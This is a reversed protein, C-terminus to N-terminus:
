IVPPTKYLEYKGGVKKVIYDVNLYFGLVKNKERFDMDNLKKIRGEWMHEGCRAKICDIVEQKTLVQVLGPVVPSNKKVKRNTTSKVTKQKVKTNKKVKKALIVNLYFKSGCDKCCYKARRSKPYFERGCNDCKAVYYGGDDSRRDLITTTKPIYKIIGM